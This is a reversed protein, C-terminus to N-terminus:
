AAKKWITDWDDSFYSNRLQAVGNGNEINWKMGAQKLRAQIAYKNASEIAGSGIYYGKDLFTKYRIKSRRTDFYAYLKRITYQDLWLLVIQYGEISQAKLLRASSKMCSEAEM